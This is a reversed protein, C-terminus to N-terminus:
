LLQRALRRLRSPLSSARAAVPLNSQARAVEGLAADECVNGEIEVRALYQADCAQDAGFTRLEQPSEETGVSAVAANELQIASGDREGGGCLRDRMPDAEDRLVPM